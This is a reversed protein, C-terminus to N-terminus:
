SHAAADLRLEFIFDLHVEDGLVYPQSGVEVFGFSRYFGVARPNESWAALWMVEVGRAHAEDICATMLARGVGSSWYPRLVYFRHVELARGSSVAAPHDDERVRAFGVAESDIYAVFFTSGPHKLEVAQIEPNYREDIHAAMGAPEARGEFNGPFAERGLRALLENDFATARQIQVDGM